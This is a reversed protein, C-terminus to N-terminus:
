IRRTIIDELIPKLKSNSYKKVAFRDKIKM